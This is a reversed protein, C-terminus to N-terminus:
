YYYRRPISKLVEELTPIHQFNLNQFNKGRADIDKLEKYNLLSIQTHKDTLRELTPDHHVILIKDKTIQVDLEIGDVGLENSSFIFPM